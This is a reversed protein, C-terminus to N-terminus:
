GLINAELDIVQANDLSPFSLEVDGSIVSLTTLNKVKPASVSLRPPAAYIYIGDVGLLDPMEISTINPTEYHIRGGGVDIM